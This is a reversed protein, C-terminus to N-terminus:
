EETETKSELHNCLFDCVEEIDDKSTAIHDEAWDHGNDILKDIQSPDLALLRDISRKITKLNGFFMYHELHDGHPETPEFSESVGKTDTAEASKSGSTLETHKKLWAIAKGSSFGLMKNFKRAIDAIDLDGEKQSYGYKHGNITVFIETGEKSPEHGDYKVNLQKGGGNPTAEMLSDLVLFDAPSSYGESELIQKLEEASEYIGDEQTFKGSESIFYEARPNAIFVKLSRSEQFNEFTKILM